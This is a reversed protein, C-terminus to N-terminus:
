LEEGHRGDLPPWGSREFALVDSGSSPFIGAVPHADTGIEQLEFSPEKATDIAVNRIQPWRGLLRDGGVEFENSGLHLSVLLAEIEPVPTKPLEMPQPQVRFASHDPMLAAFQSQGLAFELEQLKKEVMGM